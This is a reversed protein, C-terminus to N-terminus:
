WKCFPLHAYHWSRLFHFNSSSTSCTRCRSLRGPPRITWQSMWRFCWLTIDSWQSVRLHPSRLPKGPLVYFFLYAGLGEMQSVIIMANRLLTYLNFIRDFCNLLLPDLVVECELILNLKESDQYSKWWLQRSIWSWGFIMLSNSIHSHFSTQKRTM